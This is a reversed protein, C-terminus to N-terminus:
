KSNKFTDTRVFASIGNVIGDAMKDLWEDNQMNERDTPNTIFGIELLCALMDAYKLVAYDESAVSSKAEGASAICAGNIVTCFEKAAAKFSPKKSAAYFTRLGSPSESQPYSDVHISLFLDAGWANADTYRYSPSMKYGTATDPNDAKDNSDHSIKVEFGAAELRSVVRKALDLTIDMEKLLEGNPLTYVTGPDGFGHGPDIYIKIKEGSIPPTPPQSNDGGIVIDQAPPEDPPNGGAPLDASLSSIVAVAVALLIFALMIVALWFLTKNKM